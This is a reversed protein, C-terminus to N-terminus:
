VLVFTWYVINFLILLLLVLVRAGLIIKESPRRQRRGVSPIWAVAERMCLDMTDWWRQSPEEVDTPGAPATLNPSKMSTYICAQRLEAM